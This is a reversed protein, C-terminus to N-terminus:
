KLFIEKEKLFADAIKAREERSPIHGTWGRAKAKKSLELGANRIKKLGNNLENMKELNKRLSDKVFESRSSYLGSSAIFFDIAEAFADEVAVSLM